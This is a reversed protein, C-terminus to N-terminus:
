ARLLYDYAFGDPHRCGYSRTPLDYKLFSKTSGQGKCRVISICHYVRCPKRERRFFQRWFARVSRDSRVTWAVIYSRMCKHKDITRPRFVVRLRLVRGRERTTSM